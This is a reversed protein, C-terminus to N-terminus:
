PRLTFANCRRSMSTHIRINYLLADVVRAEGEAAAPRMHVAVCLEGITSCCSLKLSLAQLGMINGLHREAVVRGQGM